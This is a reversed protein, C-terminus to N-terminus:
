RLGRDHRTRIANWIWVNTYVTLWIIDRGPCVRIEHCAQETTLLEKASLPDRSQSAPMHVMFRTPYLVATLRVVIARLKAQHRRVSLQRAGSAHAPTFGRATVPKIARIVLRLLLKAMVDEIQVYSKFM